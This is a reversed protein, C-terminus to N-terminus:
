KIYTTKLVPEVLWIFGHELHGINPSWRGIHVVKWVKLITNIYCTMQIYNTRQSTHDRDLPEIILCIFLAADKFWAKFTTSCYIKSLFIIVQDQVFTWIPFLFSLNGHHKHAWRRTHLAYCFSFSGSVFYSMFVLTHCAWIRLRDIGLQLSASDFKLLVVTPLAQSKPHTSQLRIM